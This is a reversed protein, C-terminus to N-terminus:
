DALKELMRSVTLAAPDFGAARLAQRVEPLRREYAPFEVITPVGHFLEPNVPFSVGALCELLDELSRPDTSIRVSVLEGESGALFPAAL